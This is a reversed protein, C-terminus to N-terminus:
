LPIGTCIEARQYLSIEVRVWLIFIYIDYYYYPRHIHPSAGLRSPIERIDVAAWSAEGYLHPRAIGVNDV